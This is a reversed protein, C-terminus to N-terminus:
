ASLLELQHGTCYRVLAQRLLRHEPQTLRGDKTILQFAAERAQSLIFQDQTLDAVKFEPLGSQKTGLFDGPGRIELDIEAIRFGDQTQAMAELRRRAPHGIDAKGVMLICFSQEAGRGVRGRLQHLQSLGFREANEVVMVSANPVDVGVEIVTTAVLIKTEGRKFRQMEYDKIDSKMKGHVVGVQVGPFARTIAQHGQELALLDETSSEEILPYVVYVQRGEDIQHRMFGFVELRRSETRIATRIPKRGPPLEDIISVDIDGYLTLALTRPIPTATMALNHPFHESKAWLKSRQLVGFKHQEDIVTLGLRRFQVPDEILAHTGIIIHTHGSQLDALIRNRQRKGQGGAILDVQLGLPELLRNCSNFHQEALIETPAMLAAQFGNDVAMLMAMVAVITKGSGVDGQVLRNMQVPKAVDARIEKVVRKQANTLQFPLQETYFRNFYDGIRTFPLSQHQPQLLTKRQALLIEFFFLEDFKLRTRARQLADFSSPFHINRYAFARDCLQNTSLIDPPLYEEWQSHALELLSYLVQRLGRADLGVRKLKETSPYLPIIKLTDLNQNEDRMPELEPHAFVLKNGQFTPKGYLAVEDGDRFRQRVWQLGQFWILQAFGTGDRFTATLRKRKGQTNLEFDSLTGVLSVAYSDGHVQNIKTVQSRDVYRRPLYHLLDWFTRLNVEKLLTDARM